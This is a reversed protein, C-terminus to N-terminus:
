TYVGYKLRGLFTEVLEVGTPTALLDIPRRQELGIAPRELWLEAEEQSGFVDMAQALIEAFKWARGSQDASLAKEPADRRRQFTRLSIGIAKELSATRQLVALHDILYTLAEGPLGRALLDHTELPGTPSRALVKDGGLLAAVRNAAIFDGTSAAEEFGQNM